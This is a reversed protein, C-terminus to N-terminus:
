LTSKDSSNYSNFVRRIAGCKPPLFHFEARYFVTVIEARSMNKKPSFRDDSTGQMIKSDYATKVASYFWDNASVDSFPLDDANEDYNAANIFSAFMSFMMSMTLLISIIRKMM